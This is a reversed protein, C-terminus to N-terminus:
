LYFAFASCSFVGSVNGCCEACQQDSGARAGGHQGSNTDDDDSMFHQGDIWSCCGDQNTKSAFGRFFAEGWSRPEVVIVRPGDDNGFASAGALAFSLALFLRKKM